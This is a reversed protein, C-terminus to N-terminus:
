TGALLGGIWATFAELPPISNKLQVDVDAARALARALERVTYRSARQAAKYWLYGAVQGGRSAFPSRGFPPMPQELRPLIRAQFASYPMNRDFGPGGPESLAARILLMHRVEGTILNLFIQPWGEDTDVERDGARVPRDSFLRSLRALADAADRRGIADYFPYLDESAGDEVNQHVDAAAVRGGTGAIDLLKDLEAAFMAPAYDTQVLLRQVADPDIAVEREKARARALRLLAPGADVRKEGVSADLVLGKRAIEALLGGAPPDTATLLAVTGDNGRELILRIASQLGSSGGKEEPMERLIEALVPADDKRRLKKAASEAREAPDGGATLGLASLVARTHRFAERRGAPTSREWADVAKALLVGPSETGLIRGIDVCVVRRPSFLSRNLLADAVDDAPSEDDFRLVEAGGEALKELVQEASEEVFFAVDGIVLVVPPAAAFAPIAEASFEVRAM